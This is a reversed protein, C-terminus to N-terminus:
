NITVTLTTKYTYRSGTITNVTISFEKSFTDGSVAASVAANDSFTVVGTARGDNDLELGFPTGAPLGSPAEMLRLDSSSVGDNLLIDITEIGDGVTYSIDDNTPTIVSGDDTITQVEPQPDDQKECSSFALVTIFAFLLVSLKKM